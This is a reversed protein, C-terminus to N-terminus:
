GHPDDPEIRHCTDCEWGPGYQPDPFNLLDGEGRGLAGAGPYQVKASYRMTGACDPETCQKDDKM